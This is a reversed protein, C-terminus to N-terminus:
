TGPYSTQTVKGTDHWTYTGALPSSLYQNLDANGTNAGDYDATTGPGAGGATLATDPNDAMWAVINTQVISLETAAAQSKGSNM